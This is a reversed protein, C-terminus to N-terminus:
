KYADDGIVGGLPKLTIVDELAFEAGFASFPQRVIGDEIERDADVLALREDRLILRAAGSLNFSDDLFAPIEVFFEDSVQAHFLTLIAGRKTIGQRGGLSAPRDPVDRARSPSSDLRFERRSKQVPGPLQRAEDVNACDDKAPGRRVFRI